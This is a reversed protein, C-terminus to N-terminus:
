TLGSEEDCRLVAARLTHFLQQGLACVLCPPCGDDKLSEAEADKAHALTM